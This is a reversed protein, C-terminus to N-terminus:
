AGILEGGLQSASLTGCGAGIDNGGSYRRVVPIGLAALEDRFGQLEEASPPQYRPTDSVDILNIKVRVGEVLAGLARAHSRSMNVGGIAVYALTVRQGSSAAYARVASMLEPLPWRKEIPM